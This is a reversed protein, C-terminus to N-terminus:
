FKIRDYNSQTNKSFYTGLALEIFTKPDYDMRAAPTSPSRKEKGRSLGSEIDMITTYYVDRNDRSDYQSMHGLVGPFTVKQKNPFQVEVDWTKSTKSDYGSNNPQGAKLKVKFEGTVGTNKDKGFYVEVTDEWSHYKDRKKVVSNKSAIVINKANEHSTDLTENAEQMVRSEEIVERIIQKLESRKM